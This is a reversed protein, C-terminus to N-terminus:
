NGIVTHDKAEKEEDAQQIEKLLQTNGFATKPDYKFM